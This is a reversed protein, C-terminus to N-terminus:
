KKVGASRVVQINGCSNLNSIVTKKEKFKRQYVQQYDSYEEARKQEM